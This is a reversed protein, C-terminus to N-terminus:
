QWKAAHNPMLKKLVEIHREHGKTKVDLINGKLLTADRRKKNTQYLVTFDQM